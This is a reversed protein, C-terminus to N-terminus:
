ACSKGSCKGGKKMMVEDRMRMRMRMRMVFICM